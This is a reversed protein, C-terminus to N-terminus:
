HESSAWADDGGQEIRVRRGELRLRGQAALRLAEPFIRHEQELIRAALSSGTDGEEVPVAAQLLIPGTDLGDDVLFVTCGSVKV